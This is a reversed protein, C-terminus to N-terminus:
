GVRRLRRLGAAVDRHFSLVLGLLTPFAGVLTLLAKMYGPLEAVWDKQIVLTSVTAEGVRLDLEYRRRGVVDRFVM